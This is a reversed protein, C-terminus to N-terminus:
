KLFVYIRIERTGNATFAIRLREITLQVNNDTSDDTARRERIKKHWM